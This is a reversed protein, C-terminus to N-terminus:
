VVPATEHQRKLMVGLRPAHEGYQDVVVSELDPEIYAAPGWCTQDDRFVANAHGDGDDCGV